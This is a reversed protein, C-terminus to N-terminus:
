ELVRKAFCFTEDRHKEYNADQPDFSSIKVGGDSAEIFKNGGLHIGTHAIIGRRGLFFLLDGRRLNERHWRLAVLRGVCAQQEADRPLHVGQSAFATQVLGSCDVGENSRGGWVYPVGLKEKASAIVADVRAREGSGDPWLSAFRAGDVQEIDAARIWGVYGDAAHCLYSEDASALLYLPENSLVENVVERGSTPSPTSHMFARPSKAVAFPRKLLPVMQVANSVQDFGLVKVYAILSEVQEPYEARGTLIIRGNEARASIDFVMLRRDFVIEREFAHLYLGLKRPDGKSDPEVQRALREYYRAYRQERPESMPMGRRVEDPQTAPETAAAIQLLICLCIGIM